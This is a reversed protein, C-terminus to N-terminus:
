LLGEAILQTRLKERLADSSPHLPLRIESQIKGMLVLATKTPIPNPEEFLLSTLPLLEYHLTRAKQWDQASVAAWMAAIKAPLINSVVSIVGRAGLAYAAFATFDDGSLVTMKGSTCALIDSTRKMCGTAEKIAVINDVQALEAVTHPLLDCATRGPVNYLIIPISCSAAIQRFHRSLGNQTPKNYYPTVHLLAQAGMKECEKSLEIAEETANSGAGAIIPVRGKAVYIAHQVIQVKERFSLTASEGTTGVVVIGNIGAAIQAEILLRLGDYDVGNDRMPTILATMAGEVAITM